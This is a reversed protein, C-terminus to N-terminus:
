GIKSPPPLVEGNQDVMEPRTFNWLEGTPTTVTWIGNEERIACGRTELENRIMLRINV